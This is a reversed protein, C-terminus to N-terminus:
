SADEIRATPPVYDVLCSLQALQDDTLRRVRDRIWALDQDISDPAPPAIPFLNRM